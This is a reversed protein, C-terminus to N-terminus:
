ARRDGPTRERGPDSRAWPEGARVAAPPLGQRRMVASKSRGSLSLWFRMAAAAIAAICLGRLTANGADGFADTRDAPLNSHWYLLALAAIIVVASWFASMPNRAENRAGPLGTVLWFLVLLGVGVFVAFGLHDSPVRSFAAVATGFSEGAFVPFSIAAYAWFVFLFTGITVRSVPRAAREKFRLAIEAGFKLLGIAAVIGALIFLGVVTFM